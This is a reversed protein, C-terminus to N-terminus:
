ANQITMTNIVNYTFHVYRRAARLMMVESSCEKLIEKQDEKCLSNFGPLHKCFEEILNVILATMETIHRFLTDSETEQSHLPANFIKNLDEQKPVEYEMQIYVLRNILEEEVNDLPWSILPITQRKPSSDSTLKHILFIGHEVHELIFNIVNPFNGQEALEFVIEMPSMPKLTFMKFDQVKQSFNKILLNAFDYNQDEIVKEVLMEWSKFNQENNLVALELKGFICDIILEVEKNESISKKLWHKSCFTQRNIISMLSKNALKCDLLSKKDLIHFIDEAIHQLGPSKTVLEM